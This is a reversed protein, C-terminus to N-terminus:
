HEKQMRSIGQQIMDAPTEAWVATATELFQQETLKFRKAFAAAVLMFHCRLRAEDTSTYVSADAREKYPEFAEILANILDESLVLNIAKKEGM